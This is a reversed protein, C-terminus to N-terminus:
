IKIELPIILSMLFNRGPEPLGLQRWNSLHNFYKTDAVNQVSFRLKLTQSRIQFSTGLNLNLIGYGPTTLENRATLVQPAAWRLEVGAFSEGLWKGPMDAEYEVEAHGGAPPILPFNYGTAPSYTYVFQGGTNLHLGKVPHYDVFFELGTHLGDNQNYKWLLGAEPLPSFEATPDLYIFGFFYNFFPSLGVDLKKGEHTIGLDFQIGRESTLTSDGKEHRLSGHHIGNATLEVATPLRYSSGLNFKLNWGEKPILTYGIAGSVNNYSRNIDPSVRESGSAVNNQYVTRYFAASRIHAYDFRVGATLIRTPKIEYKFFSYAGIGWETFGPILFSYGASRNHRHQGNIGHIAKLKSTIPHHYRINGSLTRLSFSFETNGQPTPAQGHTHPLSYENRLNQQFGLDSELWGKGIRINSNSVVKIHKVDQSPLDRNRISEDASLDNVKPIGHAGPFFGTKLDYYTASLMSYGWNKILGMSVSANRERGATNKLRRNEIPLIFSNYTFEDAPVAYDAYDQGSFRAKFLLGKKQLGAHASYGFLHNNSRYTFLGGSHLRDPKLSFVPRINIIGSIADSGFLLSGPGKIIEVREVNFQDIELGHDAGWQQGEQKLGFEAVAVRNFGLGRILPKAIGTGTTVAQVGPVKTLIGAFSSGPNKDIFEKDVVTISQSIENKTTRFRSDEIEVQRLESTSEKLRLTGLDLNGALPVDVILPAYGIRTIHLHYNGPKLNEFEFKGSKDTVEGKELEHIYVHADELREGTKEDTVTGKLNIGNQASVYPTTWWAWFLFLTRITYKHLMTAFIYNVM